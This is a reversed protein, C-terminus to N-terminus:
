RTAEPQPRRRLPPRLRRPLPRPLPVSTLKLVQGPFILSKWGLGNLTLVSATALGFRGAIGSVTDGKVVRYTSPASSALQGVAAVKVSPVVSAITAGSAHHDKQKHARKAQVSESNAGAHIGGMALSGVLIIPMTHRLRRAAESREKEARHRAGGRANSTEVMSGTGMTEAGNGPATEGIHAKWVFHCLNAGTDIM